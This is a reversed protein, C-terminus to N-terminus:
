KSTASILLPLLYLYYKSEIVILIIENLFTLNFVNNLSMRSLSGYQYWERSMESWSISWSLERRLIYVNGNHTTPFHHFHIPWVSFCNLTHGTLVHVVSVVHMKMGEQVVKSQSFLKISLITQAGQFIKRKGVISRTLQDWILWYIACKLILCKLIFPLYYCYVVHNSICVDFIYTYWIM